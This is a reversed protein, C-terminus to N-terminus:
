RAVPAHERQAAFGFFALALLAALAVLSEVWTAPARLFGLFSPGLEVVARIILGAGALALVARLIPGRLYRVLLGALGAVALVFLVVLAPNWTVQEPLTRYLSVALVAGGVAGLVFTALGALLRMLVVVGIAAAVGVVLAVVASGGLSTVLGSGIGFGACAGAIRLFRVGAFCLLLGAALALLGTGGSAPDIDGTAAALM